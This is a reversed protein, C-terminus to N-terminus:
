DYDRCRIPQPLKAGADTALSHSRDSSAKVNTDMDSLARCRAEETIRGAFISTGSVAFTSIKALYVFGDNEAIWHEGNDPSLFVGSDTGAIINAGGVASCTVDFHSLGATM